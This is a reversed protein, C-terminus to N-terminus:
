IRYPFFFIVCMLIFCLLHVIRAYSFNLRSHTFSSHHYLSPTTSTPLNYFLHLSALSPSFISFVFSFTYASFARIVMSQTNASREAAAENLFYVKKYTKDSLSKEIVISDDQTGLLGVPPTNKSSTDNPTNTSPNINQNLNSKNENKSTCYYARSTSRFLAPSTSLYFPHLPLRFSSILM